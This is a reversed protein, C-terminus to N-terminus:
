VITNPSTCNDQWLSSNYFYELFKFSKAFAASYIELFGSETLFKVPFKDKTTKEASSLENFVILVLKTFFNFVSPLFTIFTCCVFLLFDGQSNM